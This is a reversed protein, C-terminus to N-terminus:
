TDFILLYFTFSHDWVVNKITLIKKIQVYFLTVHLMHTCAEEKNIFMNPECFKGIVARTTFGECYPSESVQIMIYMCVIKKNDTNLRTSIKKLDLTTFLFAFIFFAYISKNFFLRLNYDTPMYM